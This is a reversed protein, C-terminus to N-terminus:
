WHCGGGVGAEIKAAVWCAFLPLNRAMMAVLVLFSKV